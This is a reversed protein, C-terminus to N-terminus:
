REGVGGRECVEGEGPLGDVGDWTIGRPRM